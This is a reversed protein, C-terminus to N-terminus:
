PHYYEMSVPGSRSGSILSADPTCVPGLSTEWCNRYIGRMRSQTLKPLSMHVTMAAARAPVHQYVFKYLPRGTDGSKSIARGSDSKLSKPMVVKAGCVTELGETNSKLLRNLM